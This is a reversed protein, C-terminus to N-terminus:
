CKASALSGRGGTDRCLVDAVVQGIIPVPIYGVNANCSLIGELLGRGCKVKGVKFRMRSVALCWKRFWGAIADGCTYRGFRDGDDAAM